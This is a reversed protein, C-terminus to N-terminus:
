FEGQWPPSTSMSEVGIALGVDYMGTAIAYWVGRLATSGGACANEVNFMEINTVGAKSGIEQALCWTIHAYNACYCM